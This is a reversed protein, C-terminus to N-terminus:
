NALGATVIARANDSVYAPMAGAAMAGKMAACIAPANIATAKAHHNNAVVLVSAM